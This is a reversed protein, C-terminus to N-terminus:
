VTTVPRSRPLVFTIQRRHHTSWGKHACRRMVIPGQLQQCKARALLLVRKERATRSRFRRPFRRLRAVAHKVYGVGSDLDMTAPLRTRSSVRTRVPRRRAASADVAPWASQLVRQKALGM